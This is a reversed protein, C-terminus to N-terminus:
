KLFTADFTLPLLDNASNFIFIAGSEGQLILRIAKKQKQSHEFIAQRCSGCPTVPRKLPHEANRATIAMAEVIQRPFLADAASLTVREACLCIPYSANEQNSGGILKGNELRIAAAVQFNSYPSYSDDLAEQARLLLQRDAPDLDDFQEVITFSTVIQHTRM